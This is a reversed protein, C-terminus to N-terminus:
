ASKGKPTAAKPEQAATAALEQATVNSDDDLIRPGLNKYGPNDSLFRKLDEGRVNFVHGDAAQVRVLPGSDAM